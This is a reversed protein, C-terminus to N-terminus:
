IIFASRFLLHVECMVFLKEHCFCINAIILSYAGCFVRM